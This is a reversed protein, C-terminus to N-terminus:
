HKNAGKKTVFFTLTAIVLAIAAGLYLIDTGAEWGFAQRLFLVGPVAVVISILNAELDELDNM